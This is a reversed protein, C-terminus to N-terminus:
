VPRSIYALVAPIFAFRAGAIDADHESLTPMRAQSTYQGDVYTSEGEGEDVGKCGVDGM